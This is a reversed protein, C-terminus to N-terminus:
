PTIHPVSVPLAVLTLSGGNVVELARDGQQLQGVFVEGTLVHRAGRQHVLLSGAPPKLARSVPRAGCAVM